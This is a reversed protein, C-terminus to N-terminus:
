GTVVVWALMSVNRAEGDAVGPVAATMIVPADPPNVLVVLMEMATAAGGLKVRVAVGALRRKLAPVLAALVIAITARLPKLSDTASTADPSGAPTVAANPGIVALWVRETVKVAALVAGVAVAVTVMWPVDPSRDLPAGMTTATVWGGVNVSDADGAESLM